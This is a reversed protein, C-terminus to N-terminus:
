QCTQDEKTKRKFVGEKIEGWYLWIMIPGWIPLTGVALVFITSWLTTVADYITM